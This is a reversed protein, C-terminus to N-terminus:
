ATTAVIPKGPEFLLREMAQAPTIGGLTKRPRDNLETAVELLRQPSHVSLDTGKPFYQRLLPTTGLLQVGFKPDKKLSYDSTNLFCTS